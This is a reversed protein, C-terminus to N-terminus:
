ADDDPGEVPDGAPGLHSEDPHATPSGGQDADDRAGEAPAKESPKLTDTRLEGMIAEM